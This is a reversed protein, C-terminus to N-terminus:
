SRAAACLKRPQLRVSFVKSECERQQFKGLGYTLALLPEALDNIITSIVKHFTFTPFRAVIQL